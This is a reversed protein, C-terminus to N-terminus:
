ESYYNKIKKGDPDVHIMGRPADCGECLVVASIGKEMDEKTTINALEKFDEGFTKISCDKCFDAM